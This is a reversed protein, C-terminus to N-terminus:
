GLHRLVRSVCTEIAEGATDVEFWHDPAPELSRKSIESWDIGHRQGKAARRRIRREHEEIDSCVVHVWNVRVGSDHALAEWDERGQQYGHVADAVVSQGLDLADVALAQAVTYGADMLDKIGIHSRRLGDEITDIRLYVARTERAVRRALTTKGSGPRGAFIVLSPKTM